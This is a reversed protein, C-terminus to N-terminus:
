RSHRANRVLEIFTEANRTIQDYNKDAILAPSVLAAGVGIACAGAKIFKPATEFDVSGTPMIPIQPLPGQMAKFFSCGGVGAPFIKVVDAGADWANYIETPTMAGPMVAVNSDRCYKITDYNTIPSVIYGAGASIAAEAMEPTLVTGAGVIIQDGMECATSRIAKLANPVTMTIEIFCVGGALLAKSVPVLDDAQDIRIVAVVGTQKLRDLVVEKANLANKRTPTTAM